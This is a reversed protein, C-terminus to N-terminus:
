HAPNSPTPREVLKRGIEERLKGLLEPQMALSITIADRSYFFHMQVSKGEADWEIDPMREVPVFIVRGAM